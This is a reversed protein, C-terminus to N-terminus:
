DSKSSSNSNHVCAILILAAFWTKFSLPISFAFRTNVSWIAALPMFVIALLVLVICGSVGGFALAESLNLKKM